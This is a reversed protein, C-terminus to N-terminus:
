RIRQVKSSEGEIVFNSLTTAPFIESMSCVVIESIITESITCALIFCIYMYIDKIRNNHESRDKQSSEM